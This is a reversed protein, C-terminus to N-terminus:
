VLLKTKVSKCEDKQLHNKHYSNSFFIQVLSWVFVERWKWTCKGEKTQNTWSKNKNIQKNLSAGTLSSDRSNNSSWTIRGARNSCPWVRWHSFFRMLYQASNALQSNYTCGGKRKKKEGRKEKLSNTLLHCMAFYIKLFVSIKIM